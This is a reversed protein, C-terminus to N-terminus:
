ANYTLHKKRKNKKRRRRRRRRRRRNRNRVLVPCIGNSAVSISGQM